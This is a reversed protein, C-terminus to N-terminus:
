CLQVCLCHNISGSIHIHFNPGSSRLALKILLASHMQTQSLFCEGEGHLGQCTYVLKAAGQAKRVYNKGRVFLKSHFPFVKAM